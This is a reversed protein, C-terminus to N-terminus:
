VTMDNNRRWELADIVDSTIAPRSGGNRRNGSLPVFVPTNGPVYDVLNACRQLIVGDCEVLKDALVRDSEL